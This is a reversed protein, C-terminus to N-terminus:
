PKLTGDKIQNIIPQIQPALTPSLQMAVELEAIANKNDGSVFYGTALGIHMQPDDPNDEVRKSWIGIIRPFMKTNIYVQLLQENDVLVTGFKEVLLADAEAVRGAYLLGSAYYIRATDFRPELEFAEKLVQIGQDVAGGQILTMGIQFLIRQKQPSALRASELHQLSEGLQGYQALFGAFLLEMRADNPRAVLMDQGGEYALKYVEQKVEPAVDAAPGVAGAFQLLQEVAEQKGLPGLALAKEYAAINLSLNPSAASLGEILLKARAVGPVNFQYVVFVLAVAVIPAAIALARDGLPRSLFMLGPLERRSLGHFFALVTFFYMASILNDFVFMSHFGYAALLGFFIAQEPPSLTSRFIAWAALIFFSLFLLFAPLGAAILWDLFENHARDFWEEQDYMDPTYYKNFVFNFNEQGWGVIPREVFGKYAMSWILFRSQTTRDEFSLSTLRSLVPSQQVLATDRAVFLVGVLLVITALAGWSIKRLMRWEPGKAQWVIYLAALVLGGILGLVAGRTQTYLLGTGQLVLSLGYFAQLWASRKERVLMFLTLFINFLLFVALYTANGFTGDARMGSQASPTFGFWQLVQFLAILGQLTSALISIQFFREWLRGATLTAGAVVFYAFLHLVTLYGEMREFNSWFSKTPDVSFMTAIGVWAVFALMAWMLLSSRPRYKPDRLALLVYLALLIEVLIRFAFSKGTIYPFFLVPMFRGDAVIFTVFPVLFLGGIIGWRLWPVYNM